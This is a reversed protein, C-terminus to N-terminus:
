DTQQDSSDIGRNLLVDRREAFEAANIEGRAYREELITLPSKEHRSRHWWEAARFVGYV